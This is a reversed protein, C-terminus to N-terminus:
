PLYPQEEAWTFDTAPSGDTDVILEALSAAGQATTGFAAGMVCPDCALPDLVNQRHEWCGGLSSSSCDINPSGLGDDYMWYYIAELPNGLWGAWNSSVRTWVFGPPVVPDKGAAAGEAAALDLDSAMSSLPPLGRVTRELNTAVLLQEAATLSAWNTPLVMAPLGSAIRANNIAAQVALLCEPSQDYATPSCTELFDPSPPINSTPNPVFPSLTRATMPSSIPMQTPRTTTPVTATPRQAAPPVAEPVTVPVTVPPAITMVVPFSPSAPAIPIVVPSTTSTTRGGLAAENRLLFTSDTAGPVFYALVVFNVIVIVVTTVLSRVLRPSTSRTRSSRRRALISAGNGSQDPAM